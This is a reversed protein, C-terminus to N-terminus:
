ANSTAARRASLLRAHSVLDHAHRPSFDHPQQPQRGVDVVDRQLAFHIARQCSDSGVLRGRRYRRGLLPGACFIAADDDGGVVFALDGLTPDVEPAACHLTVAGAVPRHQRGQSRTQRWSFLQRDVGIDFVDVPFDQCPQANCRPRSSRPRLCYCGRGLRWRRVAGHAVAKTQRDRPAPAPAGRGRCPDPWTSEVLAHRRPTTRARRGTRRPLPRVRCGEAAPCRRSSGAWGSRRTTSRRPRM